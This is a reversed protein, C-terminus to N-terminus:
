INKRIEWLRVRLMQVVGRVVRRRDSVSRFATKRYERGALARAEWTRVPSCDWSM